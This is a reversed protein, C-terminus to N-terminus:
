DGVKVNYHNNSFIFKPNTSRMALGPDGAVEPLFDQSRASKASFAVRNQPNPSKPIQQRSNSILRVNASHCGRLEKDDKCDNIYTNNDTAVNLAISQNTYIFSKKKSQTIESTGLVNICGTTDVSANSDIQTLSDIQGEEIKDFRTVSNEFDISMTSTTYLDDYFIEEEETTPKGSRYGDSFLCSLSVVQKLVQQVLEKIKEM